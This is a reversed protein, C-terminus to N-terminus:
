IQLALRGNLVAKDDLGDRKLHLSPIIATQLEELYSDGTVTGNFFEPGNIGSSSIGALVTIGPKNLQKGITVCPNESVWYTCNHRNVHGSLKFQAEDTWVITDPLTPTAECQDVFIECFQLRRDTDDGIIWHILRPVYPKYNLEKLM